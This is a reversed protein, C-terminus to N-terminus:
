ARVEGRELFEEVFAGYDIAPNSKPAYEYISLRQAQAEKVIVSERIVTKYLFTGIKSATASAAESMDRTLISRANHRTLLIGALKLDPNTYERVAEVTEALQNIGQMSYVDAQSPIIVYNSATLANITLLGLAPPTDIVIYNYKVLLPKLQERLRYEKGVGILEIDIKVLNPSAAMIDARTDIQIYRRKVEHMVEQVQEQTRQQTAEQANCQKTLMEYTTLHAPYAGATLSASGQPDLDILLTRYGKLTLGDALSESTTSKSVGGKQNICCVVCTPKSTM